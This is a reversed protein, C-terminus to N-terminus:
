PKTLMAAGLVGASDGLMPKTFNTELRNNFVFEKASKIGDNYLNDVNGIGGGIVIVDPDILNIVASVAKGFFYSLREITKLVAEDSTGNQYKTYIDKFPMKNGTITYYYNQLGPGSLVTEVCGTKGCYCKGGTDDLFNHGWEGAIGHIGNLVKGNIVIGGGVGTGMIIGFITNAKPFNKKVVGLHSEALVFCNADNAMFIPIRFLDELDQKLPKGNLAVTNSNKLLNTYPDLSGPTGFGISEPVIGSADILKRILLKIQNLIHNYGKKAETPIRIRSIIDLTKADLIVGEIKTGGLDVGFLYKMKVM